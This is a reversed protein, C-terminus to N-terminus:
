KKPKSFRPNYVCEKADNSVFAVPPYGTLFQIDEGTHGLSRCAMKAEKLTNHSSTIKNTDWNIVHYM